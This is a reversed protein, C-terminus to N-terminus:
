KKNNSNYLNIVNNTEEDTLGKLSSTLVFNSMKNLSKDDDIIIYDADPNKHIWNLIEDKRRLRLINPPLKDISDINVGRDKFIELWKDNDFRSKHSTTLVISGKTHELIQNLCAIATVNFDPFGDELNETQRWGPTTILVGDIDLLLTLM